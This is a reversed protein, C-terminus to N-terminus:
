PPESFLSRNEVLNGLLFALHILVLPLVPGGVVHTLVSFSTDQSKGPACPPSCPPLAWCPGGPSPASGWSQLAAWEQTDALAWKGQSTCPTFTGVRDGVRPSGWSSFFSERLFGFYFWSRGLCKGQLTFFDSKLYGVSLLCM